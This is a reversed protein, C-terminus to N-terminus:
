RLQDTLRSNAFNSGGSPLAAAVVVLALIVNGGAHALLDIVRRWM